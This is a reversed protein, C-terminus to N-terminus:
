AATRTPRTILARDWWTERYRRVGSSACLKYVRHPSLGVKAAITGYTLCTRALVLVALKRRRDRADSRSITFCYPDFIPPQLRSIRASIRKVAPRRFVIRREHKVPVILRDHDLTIGYQICSAAALTMSGM